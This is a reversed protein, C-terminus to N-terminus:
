AVESRPKVHCQQIAKDVVDFIDSLRLVGVVRDKETVLLAHHRGLGLQHIAVNLSTAADLFEGRTPTYM